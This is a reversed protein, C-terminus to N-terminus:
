SWPSRFIASSCGHILTFALTAAAGAIAGSFAFRGYLIDKDM